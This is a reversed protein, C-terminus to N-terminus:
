KRSRPVFGLFKVTFFHALAVILSNVVDTLLVESLIAKESVSLQSEVFTQQRCPCNLDKM